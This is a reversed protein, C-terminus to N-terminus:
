SSPSSPLNVGRSGRSRWRERGMILFFSARKSGEGEEDSDGGEGPFPFSPPLSPPSAPVPPDDDPPIAVANYCSGRQPHSASPCNPSLPISPATFLFTSCLLLGRSTLYLPLPPSSPTFIIIYLLSHCQLILVPLIYSLSPSLLLRSFFCVHM